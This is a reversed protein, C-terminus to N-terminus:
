SVIFFCIVFVAVLLIIIGVVKLGQSTNGILPLRYNLQSPGFNLPGDDTWFALYFEPPWRSVDPLALPGSLHHETGSLAASRVVTFPL